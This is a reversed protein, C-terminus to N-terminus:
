KNEEIISLLRDAPVYGPIKRGDALFITPTGSLGLSHALRLQNAVPDKCDEIEKEIHQGQKSVTLANLPDNACWANVAKFYSPTNVGSRPYALYRVTIGADHYQEMEAHLKRCYGCDIDTFVTVVHKPNEPAFVIMEDENLTDLVKKTLGTRARETHNVKTTWDILDGQFMYRADKTMYFVDSGIVVEYLGAIPTETISDAKGNPIVSAIMGNIHPFEDEVVDAVPELAPAASEATEEVVIEVVPEEVAVEATETTEAPAAEIAAEEEVVTEEIVADAASDDTWGFVGQASFAPSVVMALVLAWLYVSKSKM